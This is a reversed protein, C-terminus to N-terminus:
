LSPTFLIFIILCPVALLIVTCKKDYNMSIVDIIFEKLPLQKTNFDQSTYALNWFFVCEIMHTLIIILWSIITQGSYVYQLRLLGLFLLFSCLLNNTSKDEYFSSPFLLLRDFTPNTLIQVVTFVEFLGLITLIVSLVDVM